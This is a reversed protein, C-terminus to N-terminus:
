ADDGPLEVGALEAARLRQAATQAFRLTVTKRRAAALKHEPADRLMEAGHADALMFGCDDPFVTQPVDALSAFFFRDCWARYDPWKSDAKMDEVSSKIEVIWITGDRHLAMIDARRGTALTVEPLTVAGLDALFAQVGRRIQM